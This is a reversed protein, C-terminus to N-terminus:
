RYNYRYTCENHVCMCVAVCVCVCGRVKLNFILGPMLQEGSGCAVAREVVGRAAQLALTAITMTMTITIALM